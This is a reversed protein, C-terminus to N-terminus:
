VELKFHVLYCVLKNDYAGAYSGRSETRKGPSAWPPLPLKKDFGKAPVPPGENKSTDFSGRSQGNTNFGSRTSHTPSIAHPRQNSNPNTPTVITPPPLHNPSPPRISLNTAAGPRRLALPQTSM